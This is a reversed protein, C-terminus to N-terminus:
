AARLEALRKELVKIETEREEEAMELPMCTEYHMNEITEMIELLDNYVSVADAQNVYEVPLKKIEISALDLYNQIKDFQSSIKDSLRMM